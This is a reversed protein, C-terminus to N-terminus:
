WLIDGDVSYFNGTKIDVLNDIELLQYLGIAAEHSTYKGNLGGLRTQVWGPDVSIVVTKDVLLRSLYKTYANLATKSISYAPLMPPLDETLSALRTSINAILTIKEVKALLMETFKVTGILNTGLSELLSDTNLVTNSTDPNIAANNILAYVSTGHLTDTFAEISSDDLLDLFNPAKPDMRQTGIVKYGNKEFVAALSKGIGQSTGTIIVTSMCYTNYCNCAFKRHIISVM